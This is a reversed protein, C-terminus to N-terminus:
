LPGRIDFPITPLFFLYTPVDSYEIKDTTLWLIFIQITLTVGRSIGLEKRYLINKAKIYKYFLIGLSM